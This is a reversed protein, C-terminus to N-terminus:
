VMFSHRSISKPPRVNDIRKFPSGFQRGYTTYILNSVPELNNTKAPKFHITLCTNCKLETDHENAYIRGGCNVCEYKKNM